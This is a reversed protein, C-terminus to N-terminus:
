QILLKKLIHISGISQSAADTYLSHVLDASGIGFGDRGPKLENLIADCSGVAEVDEFLVILSTNENSERMYDEWTNHAYKASRVAPCIGAQGEPPYRLAKQAKKVDDASMIHPVVVGRAGAELAYRIRKPENAPVRVFVTLDVNEGIRILQLMTEDNIRCHEMDLMIFDFGAYGALEYLEGSAVYMQMGFSHEGKRFNDVIKNPKRVFM